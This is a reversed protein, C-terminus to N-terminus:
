LLSLQEGAATSARAEATAQEAARVHSVPVIVHDRDRGPMWGAAVMARRATEPKDFVVVDETLRTSGTANEGIPGHWYAPVGVRRGQNPLTLRATVKVVWGARVEPTCLRM